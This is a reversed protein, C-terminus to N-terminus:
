LLFDPSASKARRRAGPLLGIPLKIVRSHYKLIYKQPKYATILGRNIKGSQLPRTNAFVGVGIL